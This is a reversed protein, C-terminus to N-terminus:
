DLERVCDIILNEAVIISTNPFNTNYLIFVVIGPAKLSSRLIGTLYVSCNLHDVRQKAFPMWCM